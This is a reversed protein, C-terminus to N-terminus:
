ATRRRRVTRAAVGAGVLLLAGLTLAALSGADGGTAPLAGIQVQQWGIVNGDADQVVLRHAGSVGAPLTVTVTGLADVRYWGLLLPESRLWVSVWDGAYQEGVHITVTAGPQVSTGGLVQIANQLATTLASEPAPTEVGPGTSPLEGGSGPVVNLPVRVVTGSDPAELVLELAGARDNPLTLTVTAAGNAVAVPPYATDGISPELTTNAPSGLSTLDLGAVDVTVSGGAVVSAPVGTVQASRSEFSPTLDDHEQLYAIWADRDVLGSDRTDAGQAFTRFNDGGQLLFNFSGVRYDGAPDIPVGDIWVGTIHSGQPAAPDYTYSVNDSLGLQLYARSPVSGDANTQWQEELVTTFQAGTLTTTWLNNVFPLVANAEAYTVVGDPAYLLEARLGGPNVVGIEAGGRDADALSERISDAVLNGLTSQAARNDRTSGTYATTIDATISGVPQNGVVAADALTRDVISKVEAVRPYAAVLDADATTTRPVNGSTFSEVEGTVPDLQLVVQGINEGYNGTQLVARTRDTGPVPATWAYLKHTHGTFIVDVDASTGNVIEAFAKGDALEAELSSNETVGAAAGEHYEAILVDAEGNAPDGDTLQASVRNVAAVPDGFDVDAIGAPAVLTPTEETVAGIVGVTLGGVTFLDYEPLLPDTTGKAYVNAGLYTFDASETVRGLLDDIGKDFEHNGVASARLDLANLVELTPEDDFYSSAFLSAGLNDGDSLFLTNDDGYQARLQEITGAVKVTNADIRGHFDNINLLNLPVPGTVQFTAESASLSSGLQPATVPVTIAGGGSDPKVTATVAVSATGGAATDPVSWTLTTGSLVVGAPLATPLTAAGLLAAADAVVTAGTLPVRGTNAVSFTLTVDDGPLVEGGAAVDSTVGASWQAPWAPKDTDYIWDQFFADLDRGSAQEAVAVFDATTASDGAHAAIWLAYTEDFDERGLATMLAGLTYKGRNYVQWGYLEAPDDFGVTPVTWRSATASNWSGYSDNEPTTTTLGVSYRYYSTFFEAAGENLWIHSWDAPAVENGLWQHVLEHILTNASVSGDFYPRDQTELAYGVNARDVILGVSDGPYPGLKTELWDIIPKIEARRTNIATQTTASITPDVFTWEHLTRGSALTIDSELLTFRGISLVSLETAMPNTQAWNWTTTGAAADVLRGTLEGNSAVSLPNGGVATPATVSIDYTAKDAPTNNQPFWTMAGIPQGLATAGDSTRVWGESSDDADIHTVPAGSYAVSVTFTGSVPTTPTIDLKFKTAAVDEDRTFAAAAGNVTVSQVTMGEFDLSFSSLPNAAVARITALATVDNNARYTLDLDYHQVDYGGNGVNPFLPDGATRAGAAPEAALAPAAAAVSGAVLAGTVVLASLSRWGLRRSSREPM